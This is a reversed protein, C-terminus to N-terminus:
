ACTATADVIACTTAVIARRTLRVAAMDVVIGVAIRIGISSRWSLIGTSIDIVICSGFCMVIGAIHNIGISAIIIRGNAIGVRVVIVAGAVARLLAGAILGRTKGAIMGTIICVRVGIALGRFIAAVM